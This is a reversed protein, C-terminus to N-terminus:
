VIADPLVIGCTGKGQLVYTVKASHSYSPLSMGGATLSLKAADISAVGLMPLDAPSWDYYAGGEGGYVKAPQRPTLDLLGGHDRGAAGGRVDVEGGGVRVGGGAAVSADWLPTPPM